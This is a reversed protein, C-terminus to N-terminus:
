AKLVIDKLPKLVVQEDKLFEYDHAQKKGDPDQATYLKYKRERIEKDFNGYHLLLIKPVLVNHFHPVAPFHIERNTHIQLSGKNKFMRARTAIGNQKRDPMDERYTNLDDWLDILHFLFVDFKENKNDSICSYIDGYRPDFREDADIFFFWKAKFFSALKLLDNRNKLDDFYGKYQKQVKVLLKDHIAKEYTSDSSEDDLLIIGDCYSNLHPLIGSINKSENRVQILAIIDYDKDCIQHNLLQSKQYADETYKKLAAFSKHIDWSWVIEDFDKGWHDDNLVIKKPYLIHKLLKISMKSTRTSREKHGDSNDERHVTKADLVEMKRIGALELRKRVQDDEGGWDQFSEDYGKIALLDSKKAMISGYPIWNYGELKEITDKYDIFAVVGTTFTNPYFHLTYRLRYIVDTVLEVEPDLVLIYNFSAAKIGVNLVKCHNRWAHAKRNIIVKFNIFPYQEIFKLLVEEESPEDLVIIVEIGNRQFYKANKPLVCKFDNLKKYFSMVISVDFFDIIDNRKKYRM